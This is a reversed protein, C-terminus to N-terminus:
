DLEEIIHAVIRQSARGDGYPNIATAMTSYLEDDNLLQKTSSIIESKKSGVLRVTGASVAEPRETTERMVLVPKGFSPAEEQIGGSDTLVLYSNALLYIFKEYGLPDILVVNQLEGLYKRVPVQVSPSLHVPFVFKIKKYLTALEKIAGCIQDMGLGHNERRHATILVLKEQNIDFKLHEQFYADLKERKGPDNTIREHTIRMADIVTNGTVIVSYPDINENLLNEQSSVTPAYHSQAIKSVLQRNFEEPFPSKLNHTRLGAEVHGVHINGYFAAMAVALTTTTDGHVLVIDPKCHDLVAPMKSLISATIDPLTQNAKMINLDYEVNIDFDSVVQDLMERHQATVCVSVHLENKNKLIEQYLPAMKIAEPRTGFCLLIKKMRSIM